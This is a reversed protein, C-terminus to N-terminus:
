ECCECVASFIPSHAPSYVTKRKRERFRRIEFQLIILSIFCYLWSSGSLQVIATCLCLSFFSDLAAGNQHLVLQARYLCLTVSFPPCSILTVCVCLVCHATQNPASMALLLEVLKALSASQFAHATHKYIGGNGVDIYREINTAIIILYIKANTSSHMIRIVHIYITILHRRERVCTIRAFLTIFPNAGTCVRRCQMAICQMGVQGKHGWKAERFCIRDFLTCKVSHPDIRISARVFKASLNHVLPPSPTM